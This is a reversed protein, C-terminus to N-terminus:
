GMPHRARRPAYAHPCSHSAYGGECPSEAIAIQSESKELIRRAFHRRARQDTAQSSCTNKSTQSFYALAMRELEDEDEMSLLIAAPRGNRTVIVPGQKSDKLFTSFHAKVDAVSAIKM